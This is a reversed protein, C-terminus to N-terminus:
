AKEITATLSCSQLRDRYLEAQELPCVIVRAKGENHAELMIKTAKQLTLTPISRMLSRVVHVMDNKDDNHLVVAYPPLLKQLRELHPEPAAEVGPSKTPAPAEGSPRQPM